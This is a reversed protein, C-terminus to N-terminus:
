MVIKRKNLGYQTSPRKIRLPAFGKHNALTPPLQAQTSAKTTHKDYWHNNESFLADRVAPYLPPVASSTLIHHSYSTNLAQFSSDDKRLTQKCNHLFNCDNQTIKDTNAELSKCFTTSPWM